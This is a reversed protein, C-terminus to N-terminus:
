RSVTLFWPPTWDRPTSGGNWDLPLGARWNANREMGHSEHSAGVEYLLYVPLYWGGLSDAQVTHGLEHQVLADGPFVHTTSVVLDRSWTITNEWSGHNWLGILGTLTGLFDDANTRVEVSGVPGGDVHYSCQEAVRYCPDPGIPASNAATTPRGFRLAFICETGCGGLYDTEDGRSERLGSPDMLAIPNASAYGFSATNGAGTGTPDRTVFRGSAPDHWRARMYYFGSPDILQSALGLYSPASGTSQALQGYARYRFAATVAGVSSVEARVNKSGDRAFTLTTLDAKVVYLPGLGYVINDGGQKMLRSPTSSPDCLFQTATGQTRSKLLSDGNYIYTRATGAVTSTKLRDLADYTFTDAGRQALRDADSWTQVTAGDQKLRNAADYLETTGSRSTVNSAGDLAFSEPVPGSVSKLRNLGDYALAFHDSLGPAFVVRRAQASV